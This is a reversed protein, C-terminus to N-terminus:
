GPFVAEWGCLALRDRIKLVEEIVVSGYVREYIEVMTTPLYDPPIIINGWSFGEIECIKACLLAIWRLREVPTSPLAIVGSKYVSNFLGMLERDEWWFALADEEEFKKLLSVVYERLKPMELAHNFVEINEKDPSVKSFFKNVMETM